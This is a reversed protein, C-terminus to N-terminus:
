IWQNRHSEMRIHGSEISRGRIGVRNLSCPSEMKIPIKNQNLSINISLNRRLRRKPKPELTQDSAKVLKVGRLLINISINYLIYLM